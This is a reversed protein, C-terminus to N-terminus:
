SNLLRTILARLTPEDYPRLLYDSAGVGIAERFHVPELNESIVVVPLNSLGALQRIKFVLELGSMERGSLECMTRSVFAAHFPSNNNSTLMLIRLAELSDSAEEIHGVGIRLLYAKLLQRAAKQDDVLLFSMESLHMTLQKKEPSDNRNL